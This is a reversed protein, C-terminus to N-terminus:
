PLTVSGLALSKPLISHMGLLKCLSFDATSVSSHVNLCKYINKSIKACM